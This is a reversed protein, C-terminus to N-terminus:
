SGAKLARMALELAERIPRMPYGLKSIKSSDLVCASRPARMFKVIEEPSSFYAAPRNRIRHRLLMEVIESNSIVGPNTLNYIGAPVRAALMRLTVEIMEELDTISNRAELIKPYKSLKCLLNRDDWQSTFPMRLRWISVGPLNRIRREMEAKTGSYFSCPPYDFSFNPEDQERFGAEPEESRPVGQYICGSGIQVLQTKCEAAIQALQEPWLVNLRFCLDQNKECEDVNPKGTYGSCNLIAEAREERIKKRLKMPNYYDVTKRDVSILTVGAPARAQAYARGLYGTAGLLLIKM